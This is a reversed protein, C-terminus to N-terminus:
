EEDDHKLTRRIADRQRQRSSGEDEDEDEEDEDNRRRDKRYSGGFKMVLDELTANGSFEEDSDDSSSTYMESSPQVQVNNNRSGRGKGGRRGERGDGRDRRPQPEPRDGPAAFSASTRTSEMDPSSGVEEEVEEVEPRMTLSIRKSQPDVELVRVSVNDGVTVVDEVKEIRETSLQSIHVLGDRGVGIDVFAGFASLGSVTGELTQGPSLDRMKQLRQARRLSLSIRSGEPDVELLKFSYTEGVQVADGPKEIRGESLESIHVLGDKGVGIDVFAGFSSLGTINGEVVEGVKLEALKERDAEPRRGRSRREETSGSDRTQRMTLSIRRSDLNISKVRVKVPDGIQVLDSPSNIRTESMESIHVLGDRGVGIDVFVGYLAISTVRGELEMGVELDQLRRPTETETDGTSEDSSEPVPTFSAGAPEATDSADVAEATVPEATDSADVAEATVPEATDSTDVAETTVPEATDSTDVAEATVPEAIEPTASETPTEASPSEGTDQDTDQSVTQEMEEAPTAPTSQAADDHETTHRDADNQDLHSEAAGLLREPVKEAVAEDMHNQDTM